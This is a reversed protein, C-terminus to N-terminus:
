VALTPFKIFIHIFLYLLCYDGFLFASASTTTLLLLLLFITCGFDRTCERASTFPCSTDKRFDVAPTIYNLFSKKINIM